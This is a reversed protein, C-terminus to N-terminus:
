FSLEIYLVHNQRVKLLYTFASKYLENDDTFATACYLLVRAVGSETLVASYAPFLSANIVAFTQCKTHRHQRTYIDDVVSANLRRLLRHWVDGGGTHQERSISSINQM